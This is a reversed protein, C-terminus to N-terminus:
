SRGEEPLPIDDFIVLPRPSNERPNSNPNLRLRLGDSEPSIPGRFALTFSAQDGPELRVVQEDRDDSENPEYVFQADTGDDLRPHGVALEVALDRTNAAELDFEISQEDQRYRLLVVELDVLWDLDAPRELEVTVVDILSSSGGRDAERELGVGPLPVDDFLFKPYQSPNDDATPVSEGDRQNFGIELRRAAPDVPGEFALTGTLREDAHFRLDEHEEPRQFAYTNGLDDTARVDTLALSTANRGRFGRNVAEVELLLHGDPDVTVARLAVSVMRQHSEVWGSLRLSGAAGTTRESAEQRRHGSSQQSAPDDDVMEGVDDAAESGSSGETETTPSPVDDSDGSCASVTFILIALVTLSSRKSATVM